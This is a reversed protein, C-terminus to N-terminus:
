DTGCTQPPLDWGEIRVIADGDRVDIDPTGDAGRKVTVIPKNRASPPLSSREATVTAAPGLFRFRVTGQTVELTGQASLPDLTILPPAGHETFDAPIPLRHKSNRPDADRGECFAGVFTDGCHDISKWHPDDNATEIAKQLAEGADCAQVSVVNAYYGAYVAQATYWRM